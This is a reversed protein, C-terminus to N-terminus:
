PVSKRVNKMIHCHGTLAQDRKHLRVHPCFLQMKLPKFVTRSHIQWIKASIHCKQKKTPRIHSLLKSGGSSVSQISHSWIAVCYGIVNNNFLYLWTQLRKKKARSKKNKCTFRVHFCAPACTSTENPLHTVFRGKRFLFPQLQAGCISTPAGFVINRM